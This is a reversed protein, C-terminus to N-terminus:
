DHKNIQIETDNWVIKKGYDDLRVSSRPPSLQM